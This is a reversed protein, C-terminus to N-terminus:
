PLSWVFYASLSARSTRPRSFLFSRYEAMAERSPWASKDLPTACVCLPVSM